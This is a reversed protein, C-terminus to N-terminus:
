CKQRKRHYLIATTVFGGLLGGLHAWNDIGSSSFGYYIMLLVSFILRKATIDEWRGKHIILVWLFGGIIGYVAGSAGASLAYDGTLLMMACSCITGSLLAVMYIILMRMHGVARELREGIGYLIVMNNILHEAGFHIFGATLLRWWQHEESILTPYLGGYNLIFSSDYTSGLIEMLIYVFVNIAILGITVYPLQRQSKQPYANVQELMQRLGYFDGPQNEYVLVRHELPRYGWTNRCVSCLERVREESGGILLTLVEVHYVPFGEPFDLLISQPHYFSGMAWEAMYQQQEPSMEYGQEQNVALVVHFGEQYYRYYVGVETRRGQLFRYGANTLTVDIERQAMKTSGKVKSIDNNYLNGLRFAFTVM